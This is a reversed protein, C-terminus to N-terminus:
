LKDYYYAHDYTVNSLEKEYCGIDVTEHIVVPIVMNEMLSEVAKVSMGKMRPRKFGHLEPAIGYTMELEVAEMQRRVREEKVQNNLRCILSREGEAQEQIARHVHIYPHATAVYRKGTPTDTFLRVQTMDQPDYQVYFQQYTYKRRFDVDPMGFEDIPEYTYEQNNVQITIGSPTFTSTKETYLWFLEMIDLQDIPQTEPNNSNTYMEIRTKGSPHTILGGTLMERQGNWMERAKCYTNKLEDLTPLNEINAEIYDLNPKSNQSKTTINGGTYNFWQHLVQSQFRGFAAEISKSQPNYPQSPHSVRCIAKYFDQLKKTKSGGQNDTVVEFPKCKAYEVAMRWANYQQEWAETDSIHYGLLMESYADMVEYVMISKMVLKVNGKKDKEYAKYYLNLKTGDGYWLADRMTPMLTRNKRMYRQKFSKEGYVADWWLPEVDPRNLFMTLSNPSKLPKWGKNVAERNYSAFIQENNYVPVHCRKLAIIYSGGDETIKITNINGFKGSILSIYGDKKYINVKEKLSSLNKPLTHWPNQQNERDEKTKYRHEEVTDVITEWPLAITKKGMANRISRRDNLAKLIYDIMSANNTYEAAKPVPLGEGNALKFDEWFFKRAEHNVPIWDPVLTEKILDEPKGKLAEFVERIKAPLSRYEYLAYNDLGKGQRIINVKKREILHRWVSETLISEDGGCLDEKTICIINNFYEM